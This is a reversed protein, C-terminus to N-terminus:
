DKPIPQWVPEMAPGTSYRVDSGDPRVLLVGSESARGALEMGFAIWEGDPSWSLSWPLGYDVCCDTEYIQVPEGGDIAVTWLVNRQQNPADGRPSTVYAISTSDASWTPFAPGEGQPGTALIRADTGDARVIVVGTGSSPAQGPAGVRDDDTGSGIRGTQSREFILAENQSPHQTVKKISM